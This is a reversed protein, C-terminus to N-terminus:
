SIERNQICSAKAKSADFWNEGFNDEGRHTKCFDVFSLTHYQDNYCM